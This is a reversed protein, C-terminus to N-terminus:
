SRSSSASASSLAARPVPSDDLPRPSRCSAEISSPLILEFSSEYGGEPEPARELGERTTAGYGAAALTSLRSAVSLTCWALIADSFSSICSDAVINSWSRRYSALADSRAFRASALTARSSSATSIDLSYAASSLRLNRDASAAARM